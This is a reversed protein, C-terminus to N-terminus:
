HKLYNLFIFCINIESPINGNISKNLECGALSLIENILDKM